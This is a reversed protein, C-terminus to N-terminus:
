FYTKLYVGVSNFSVPDVEREANYTTPPQHSRLVDLGSDAELSNFTVAKAQIGIDANERFPIEIGVIFQMGYLTANIQNQTSSTSGALNNRVEDSNPLDIGTNIQTWDVNRVWVRGNEVNTNSVGVGIGVYPRINRNVLLDFYTNAFFNHSEVSDIREQALYIEESLKDRTVGSLSLIPSNQDYESSRYIYELEFRFRYSFEDVADNLRTGVALSTTIGQADDFVSKWGTGSTPCGAESRSAPDPNIFPDCVSGQDTSAGIFDFGSAVHLGIQSTFYKRQDEEGLAVSSLLLLSILASIRTIVVM